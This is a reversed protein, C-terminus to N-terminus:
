FNSKTTKDYELLSKYAKEQVYWRKSWIINCKLIRSTNKYNTARNPIDINHRSPINREERHSSVLLYSKTERQLIGIDTIIISMDGHADYLEIDDLTLDDDFWHHDKYKVMIVTIKKSRKTMSGFFTKTHNIRSLGTDM